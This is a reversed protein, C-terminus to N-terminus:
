ANVIRHLARFQLGFVTLAAHRLQSEKGNAWKRGWYCYISSEDGDHGLVSSGGRRVGESKWGWSYSKFTVVM